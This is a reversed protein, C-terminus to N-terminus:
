AVTNNTFTPFLVYDNLKPNGLKRKQKGSVKGLQFMPQNKVISGGKGAGLRGGRGPFKELNQGKKIQFKKKYLSVETDTSNSVFM